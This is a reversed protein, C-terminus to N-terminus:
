GGREAGESSDRGGLMRKKIVSSWRRERKLKRGAPLVASPSGRFRVGVISRSALSPTTRDEMYAEEVTQVDLRKETIVPLYALREVV